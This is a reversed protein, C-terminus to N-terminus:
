EQIRRLFELHRRYITIEAPYREYLMKTTNASFPQETYPNVPTNSGAHISSALRKILDMFEFCFVRPVRQQPEKDVVFIPHHQTNPRVFPNDLSLCSRQHCRQYITDAKTGVTPVSWSLGLSKPCRHPTAVLTSLEELTNVITNHEQRVVQEVSKALRPDLTVKTTGYLEVFMQRQGQALQRLLKVDTTQIARDLDHGYTLAFRGTTTRPTSLLVLWAVHDIDVSSPLAHAMIKAAEHCQDEPLGPRTLFAEQLARQCVLVLTSRQANQTRVPPAGLSGNLASSGNDAM